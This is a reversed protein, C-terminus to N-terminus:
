TPRCLDRRDHGAHLEAQDAIRSRLSGYSSPSTSSTGLGTGTASTTGTAGTATGASAPVGATAGTTAAATTTPPTVLDDTEDAESKPLKYGITEEGYASSDFAIDERDALVGGSYAGSPLYQSADSGSESHCGAVLGIALTLWMSSCLRAHKEM